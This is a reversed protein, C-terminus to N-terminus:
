EFRFQYRCEIGGYSAITQRAVGAFKLGLWGFESEQGSNLGWGPIGLVAFKM